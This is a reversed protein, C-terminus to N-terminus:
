TTQNRGGETGGGSRWGEVSEVEVEHGKIKFRALRYHLRYIGEHLYREQVMSVLPSSGQLFIGRQSWYGAATFLEEALLLALVKTLGEGM